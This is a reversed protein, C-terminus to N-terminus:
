AALQADIRRRVWHTLPKELWQYCASGALVAGAVIVAIFLWGPSLLNLRKLALAGAALAFPHVLYVSYSADGLFALLRSPRQRLLDELGCAAWCLFFAPIGFSFSRWRLNLWAQNVAFFWLAAAALAVWAWRPSIVRAQHLHYLAIGYIFNVLIVDTVFRMEVGTGALPLWGTEMGRGWAFLGLLAACTIAHGWQRSLLLGAAFLGYFFLEYSLTWGAQILYSQESPWLLFSRLVDTGGAGSNVVEPRSLYIALAPLSLLWYLPLIRGFRHALFRGLRLPPRGPQERTTHCMVFGSIVFFIDVGAHGIHFWSLPAGAFQEGKWAAHSLLVLLAALGRLYQISLIM